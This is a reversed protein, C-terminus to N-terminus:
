DRVCTLLRVVCLVCVCVLVKVHKTGNKNTYVFHHYMVIMDKEGEQLAWKKELIQQLVQAPTASKLSIKQEGFM